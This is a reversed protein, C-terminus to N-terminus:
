SKTNLLKQQLALCNLVQDFMKIRFIKNWFEPWKHWVLYANSSQSWFNIMSLVDWFQALIMMWSLVNNSRRQKFRWGFSTEFNENVLNWLRPLFRKSFDHQGNRAAHKATGRFVFDRRIFVALRCNARKFEARDLTFFCSWTSVCCEREWDCTTLYPLLYLLFNAAVHNPWPRSLPQERVRECQM